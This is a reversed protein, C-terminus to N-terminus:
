ESKKGFVVFKGLIYNLLILIPTVILKSTLGEVGFLPQNIGIAVLLPVLVIELLGVAFRTSFFTVIQYGLRVFDWGKSKFVRIKNVFFSFLVAGFWAVTNAVTIEPENIETFQRFIWLVFTYVLWNVGTTLLSYFVYVAIERFSKKNKM